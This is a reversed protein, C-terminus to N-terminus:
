FLNLHWCKYTNSNIFHVSNVIAAVLSNHSLCVRKYLSLFLRRRLVPFNPIRCSVFTQSMSVRRELKMLYRFVKNYSTNVRTITSQKYNRWLACGYFSSCFSDFLKCKVQFNCNRFNRNLMNGRTYLGRIASCMSKDDSCNNTIYYGLYKEEDVKQILKGNVFLDPFILNKFSGPCIMMCKTKKINFVLSHEIVYNNCEELLKQLSNPSPAVLVTDDAYMLHNFSKGNMSCGFNRTQLKCSLEDMFVNFLSPSLVSGQRVGNSVKFAASLTCGWQVIFTQTRYWTEM